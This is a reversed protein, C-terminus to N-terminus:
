LIINLGIVLAFWYLLVVALGVFAIKTYTM